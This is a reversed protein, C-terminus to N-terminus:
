YKVVNRVGIRRSGQTIKLIYYGTNFNGLDIIVEQNGQAPPSYYENYIIKGSLDILELKARSLDVLNFIVTLNNKVPLPFVIIGNNGFSENYLESNPETASDMWALRETIWRKLYGIEEGYTNGVFYNPWVYQGLVPYKQFNKDTEEGLYTTVSDIFHMFTNDSFSSKRLDRWRTIFGREYDPDEMLRAWWHMHYGEENTYHPYHWGTTSLNVPSYNVNGYCLDFDWLPGAKLKNGQTTREKYFFTSFVYGDVNNSLEQMLQYDIFSGCDIYKRFGYDPDRFGSSNLASEFETMFSRIYSKQEYTISDARPYVYTFPYHRDPVLMYAPYTIFYEDQSLDQNKDRKLIYGGSIENASYDTKKLTNIDVRASDKKIKEMLLYIGNYEGNLYVVCYRFRPQWTGMKAGFYYTIANRLMSKDSYHAHLIWDSNAPMGLLSATTDIKETKRLEVSYTKKPFMQSSQGHIEIGTPGDYDTGPDTIDNLKGPGNDIVKISGMIKPSDPISQGYTNIVVVPLKSTTTLIINFWSPVPRYYTNSDSIAVSFFTASSLDSSYTTCNHVQLALVNEGSKMYRVLTDYRITFNEPVGGYPLRPEACNGTLDGFAPRIGTTGINARAIEHGNLYAVFGDDYDVHLVAMSIVSPDIINFSIRMYLSTVPSILLTSDDGDGYGIGGKGSLWVSEDFGLTNWDPPPESAPVTYRWVDDSRVITEWHNIDQASLFFSNLIAILLLINIRHITQRTGSRM